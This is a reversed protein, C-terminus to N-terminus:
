SGDSLGASMIPMAGSPRGGGARAKTAGNAILLWGAASLVQHFLYAAYVLDARVGWTQQWLPDLMVQSGYILMIGLCAWFWLQGTWHETTRPVLVVLTFAAAGVRLLHAM